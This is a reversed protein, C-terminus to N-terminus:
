RTVPEIRDEFFWRSVIARARESVPIRGAANPRVMLPEYDNFSVLKWREYEDVPAHVEIYEGGPLRVIRGSETGHLVIQRDKKQLALCIRKTAFYAAVPGLFFAPALGAFSVVGLLWPAAAGALRFVLWGTALRTMWTGVLSVGQGAFFLRYNRNAFARGMARLRSGRDLETDATSM